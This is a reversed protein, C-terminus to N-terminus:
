HSRDAAWPRGQSRGGGFVYKCIERAFIFGVLALLLREVHGNMVLFLASATVFFRAIFSMMMLRLPRDARSLRRITLWLLPFYVFGLLLGAIFVLLLIVWLNM